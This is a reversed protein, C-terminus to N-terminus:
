SGESVGQLGCWHRVVLGGDVAARDIQGTARGSANLPVLVGKDLRLAIEPREKIPPQPV